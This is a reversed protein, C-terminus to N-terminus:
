AQEREAPPIPSPWSRLKSIGAILKKGARQGGYTQAAGARFHRRRKWAAWGFLLINKM